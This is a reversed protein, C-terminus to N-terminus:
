KLSYKVIYIEGDKLSETAGYLSSDDEVVAFTSIPRDLEYLHVFDGEWNFIYLQDGYSNPYGKYNLMSLYEKKQYPEPIVYIYNQTVYTKVGTYSENDYQPNLGSGEYIPYDDVIVRRKINYIDSIDLIEVYNGMSCYYVYENKQPRKLIDGNNYVFRKIGDGAENNDLPYSIDLNKILNEKPYIVSLLGKSYLDGGLAIIMTSDQEIFKKWVYEKESIAMPLEIWNNYDDINSTLKIKFAKLKGTKEFINLTKDTNIYSIPNLFEHPGSGRRGFRTVYILSDANIQHIYYSTDSLFCRLVIRNDSFGEICNSWLISDQLLVKGELLISKTKIQKLFDNNGIPTKKM